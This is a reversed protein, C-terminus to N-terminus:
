VIGKIERVALVMSAWENILDQEVVKRNKLNANIVNMRGTAQDRSLIGLHMPLVSQRLKVIQGQRLEKISAPDTYRDLVYNIKAAQPDSTYDQIDEIEMGLDTLTCYLLGVCDLGQRNRGRMRFPVNLYSRATAVIHDRTM